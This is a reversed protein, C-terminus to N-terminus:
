KKLFDEMTSFMMCQHNNETLLWLARLLIIFFVTLLFFWFWPTAIIPFFQNETTWSIILLSLPFLLTKILQSVNYVSSQPLSFLGGHAGRSNLMLFNCSVSNELSSLLIKWKRIALAWYLSYCITIVWFINPPHFLLLNTGNDQQFVINIGGFIYFRHLCCKM